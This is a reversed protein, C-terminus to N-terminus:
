KARCPVLFSREWTLFHTGEHKIGKTKVTVIGDGLRSKSLRKSLVETEAYITDGIFVPSILEINKWGLNAIGRASTSSLSLGGIIHITVLSSVIIQGFETGKAYNEDIHLPHTNGNLMSQWTNDAQTITRGPRHEYIDGIDFDEYYLGHSERYRNDSIKVLTGFYKSQKKM